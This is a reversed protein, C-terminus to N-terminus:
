PAHAAHAGASGAGAPCSAKPNFAAFTGRPNDRWVWAHLAYTNMPGDEFAQGFLAPRTGPHAPDWLARPMMYEAAVLRLSGDARPEYVLLEPEAPDLAPDLVRPMHLYHVGMAADAVAVCGGFRQYGDAVAVEVRHYRATAARAAALDRHVDAAAAAASARAAPARAPRPPATAADASCAALAGLTLLPAIAAPLLPSRFAPM